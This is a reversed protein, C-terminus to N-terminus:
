KILVAKTYNRCGNLNILYIGSPLSKGNSNCGDWTTKGKGDSNSRISLTNVLRGKLDYINLEDSYTDSDVNWSITTSPNFPNPYVNIKQDAEAISNQNTNTSYSYIVREFNNWNEDLFVSTISETKRNWMDYYTYTEFNPLWDDNVKGHIINYTELGNEYTFLKETEMFWEIGDWVYLSVSDVLGEETYRYYNSTFDYWDYGYQQYHKEIVQDNEWTFLYRYDPDWTGNGAYNNGYIEIIRSDEIIADYQTFTEYHDYVWGETYYDEFLGDDNYSYFSRQNIHSENNFIIETRSLLGNERFLNFDLITDYDDQHQIITYHVLLDNNYTFHYEEDIVWELNEEDWEYFEWTEPYHEECITIYQLPTPLFALLGAGYYSRLNMCSSQAPYISSLNELGTNSFLSTCAIIVSIFLLKKM